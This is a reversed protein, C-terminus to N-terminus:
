SLGALRGVPDLTESDIRGQEYLDDRVHFLAVEGIVLDANPEAATGGMSLIQHLRCEMQIKSQVIRPVKVKQGPVVDFGVAEAESMEPPFDTACQNVQEVNEGDVVQIVYEKYAAINRATDKQVGGPKRNVTVALM